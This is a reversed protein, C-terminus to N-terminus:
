FIQCRLALILFFVVVDFFRASNGCQEVCLIWGSVEVMCCEPARNEHEMVGEGEEHESTCAGAGEPLPKCKSFIFLPPHQPFLLRGLCVDVFRADYVCLIWGRVEIM